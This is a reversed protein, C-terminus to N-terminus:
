LVLATFDDMDTLIARIVDYSYGKRELFGALRRRRTERDVSQLTKLKKHAVEQATKRETDESVVSDLAEALIDRGIGKQRLEREIRHRGFGQLRVRAAAWQHAFHRDNVYELRTLEALVADAVSNDFGKDKLKKKVEASSRPRITLLRYAANKARSLQKDNDDTAQSRAHDEKKVGCEVSRM